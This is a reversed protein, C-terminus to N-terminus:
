VKGISYSLGSSIGYAQGVHPYIEINKGKFDLVLSVGFKITNPISYSLDIVITEEKIAGYTVAVATTLAAGIIIWALISIAFHGSPDYKNIPDNGCYAYLNM